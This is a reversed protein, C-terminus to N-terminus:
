PPEVEVAEWPLDEAEEWARWNAVGEPRPPPLAEVEGWAPWGEAEKPDEWSPLAAAM